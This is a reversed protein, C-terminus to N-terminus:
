RSEPQLGASLAAQIDQTLTAVGKIVGPGGNLWHVSFLRPIPNPLKYEQIDLVVETGGEVLAMTSGLKVVPGLERVAIAVLKDYRPAAESAASQIRSASLEPVRHLSVSAFCGSDKFFRDIGDSAAAERAPADKQDVRWQPAWVVVATSSAQCVPPQPSPTIQISTTAACGCLALSVFALVPHPSPATANM